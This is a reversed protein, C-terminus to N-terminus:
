IEGDVTIGYKEARYIFSVIDADQEISGSERLDSLQPRKNSRKEVERSLQALAIVPIALEKALGKLARSIFAIEQERNGQGKTEHRLLQLYDVVVLGLKGCNRALRRASARLESPTLGPTEDISLSVGKLVSLKTQGIDYDQDISTLKIFPTM